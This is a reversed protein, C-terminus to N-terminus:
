YLVDRLAHAFDAVQPFRQEGFAASHVQFIRTVKGSELFYEGISASGVASNGAPGSHCYSGLHSPKRHRAKRLAARMSRCDFDPLGSVLYKGSRTAANFFSFALLNTRSPSITIGMSPLREKSSKSCRM